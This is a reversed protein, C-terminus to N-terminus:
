EKLTLVFVEELKKFDAVPLVQAYMTFSTESQYVEAIRGVIIGRPFIGGYGSTEILDGTSIDVDSPIYDLRVMGQNGLLVDGKLLVLDRTKTIRASVTSNPDIISVVQSTFLDVRSVRGVLGRGTIVPSNLKVGERSGVDITFTKFWNGPEKGIINAGKIDYSLFRDKIGLASTLESIKQRYEELERNEREIEEIRARLVENEDQLLKIDGLYVMTEKVKNDVFSFTRQFPVLITGFIGGTYRSVDVKVASVYM